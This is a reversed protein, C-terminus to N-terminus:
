PASKLTEFNVHWTTKTAEDKLLIGKKTLKNRIADATSFDKNKRADQRKQILHSIDEKNLNNETLFISSLEDLFTSPEEQFLAFRKGKNQLWTLVRKSLARQPKTDLEQNTYRIM